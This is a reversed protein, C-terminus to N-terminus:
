QGYILFSVTDIVFYLGFGALMVACVALAATMGKRGAIAAGKNTTFTVLELWILDALWHVLAFVPLLWYGFGIARTTLGLGITAWWLLFYPNSISLFIGTIFPSRGPNEAKEAHVGKRIDSLLGWAMYLLIAGGLLGTVTRAIDTKVLTDLGATLLLILPFEVVAHGLAIMLGSHRSKMGHSIAAATVPGPSMAGSCSIAFSSALFLLINM